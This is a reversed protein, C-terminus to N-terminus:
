MCRLTPVLPPHFFIDYGCIYQYVTVQGHVGVHRSRWCIKVQSLASPGSVKSTVYKYPVTLPTMLEAILEAIM